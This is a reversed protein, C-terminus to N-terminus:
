KLSIRDAQAPKLYKDGCDDSRREVDLAKRAEHHAASALVDIAQEAVKRNGEAQHIFVPSTSEIVEKKSFGPKKMKHRATRQETNIPWNTWREHSRGHDVALIADLARQVCAANVILAVVVHRACVAAQNRQSAACRQAIAAIRHIVEGSATPAILVISLGGISEEDEPASRPAM